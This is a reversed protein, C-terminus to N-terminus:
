IDFRKQSIKLTSRRKVNLRTELIGGVEGGRIKEQMGGVEVRGEGGRIKENM